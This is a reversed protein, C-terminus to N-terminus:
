KNQLNQILENTNADYTYTGNMSIGLGVLECTGDADFDVTGYGNVEYWLGLLEKPAASKACGAFVAALVFLLVFILILKRKM